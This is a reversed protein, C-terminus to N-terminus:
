VTKREDLLKRAQEADSFWGLENLMNSLVAFDGGSERELNLIKKIARQGM